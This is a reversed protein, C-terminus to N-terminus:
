RPHGSKSVLRSVFTVILHRLEWMKSSSKADLAYM